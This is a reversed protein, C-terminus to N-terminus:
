SITRRPQCTVLTAFHHNSTLASATRSVMEVQSFSLAVMKTTPKVKIRSGAFITVHLHGLPYFGANVQMGRQGFRGLTPCEPFSRSESLLLERDGDAHVPCGDGM